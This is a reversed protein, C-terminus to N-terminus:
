APAARGRHPRCSGPTASRRAARCRRRSPAAPAPPGCGRCRAPPSRADHAAAGDDGAVVLAPGIGVAAGKSSTRQSRNTVSAVKPSGTNRWSGSARSIPRRSAESAPTGRACADRRRRRGRCSGAASRAAARRRSRGASRAARRARLGHAVEVALEADVEPSRASTLSAGFLSGPSITSHGGTPAALVAPRPPQGIGDGGEGRAPHAHARAGPLAADLQRQHDGIVAVPGLQDCVM